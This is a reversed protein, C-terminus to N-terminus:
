EADKAARADKVLELLKETSINPAHDIGLEKAEAKLDERSPNTIGTPGGDDAQTGAATGDDKRNEIDTLPTDGSVEEFHAKLGDVLPDKFEVVDGKRISPPVDNKARYKAM